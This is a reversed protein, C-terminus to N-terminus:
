VEDTYDDPLNYTASSEKTTPLYYKAKLQYVAFLFTKTNLRIILGAKKRLYNLCPFYKVDTVQIGYM